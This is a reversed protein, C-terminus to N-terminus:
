EYVAFYATINWNAFISMKDKNKLLFEKQQSNAISLMKEYYWKAQEFTTLKSLKVADDWDIILPLNNIEDTLTIYFESGQGILYHMEIVDGTKLRIYLIQEPFTGSNDIHFYCLDSFLQELDGMINFYKELAMNVDGNIIADDIWEPPLIKQWDSYQFDDTYLACTLKGSKQKKACYEMIWYPLGDYDIKKDEKM